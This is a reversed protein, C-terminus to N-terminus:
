ETDEVGRGADLVRLTRPQNPQVSLRGAARLARLHHHVTSSSTLGVAAGIERVSPPYQHEAVYGVIFRVIREQIPADDPRPGKTM